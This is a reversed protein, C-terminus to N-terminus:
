KIDQKRISCKEDMLCIFCVPVSDSDSDSDIDSNSDSYRGRDGNNDQTGEWLLRNGVEWTQQVFKM